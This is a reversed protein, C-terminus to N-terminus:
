PGRPESDDPRHPAWSGSSASLGRPGVVWPGAPSPPGTGAPKVPPDRVTM